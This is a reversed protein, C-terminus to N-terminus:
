YSSHCNIQNFVFLSYARVRFHLFSKHSLCVVTSASLFVFHFYVVYFFFFFVTRPPSFLFPLSPYLLSANLSLSLSRSSLNLLFHLFFFLFLQPTFLGLHHPPLLSLISFFFSYSSFPSPYVIYFFLPIFHRLLFSLSLYFSFLLSNEM